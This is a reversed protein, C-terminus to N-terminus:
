AIGRDILFAAAEVFSKRTDRYDRGLLDRARSGDAERKKGIDPLIGKLSPDFLAFLRLMFGPAVRTVIRRKPYAEKLAMALDKFWLFQDCAGIMRQGITEDQELARVHIEAIDRVDVSAFGIEPLMPDKAALLREVIEISTGFNADLPPGVVFSPNVATMRLNKEDAFSWAAKEALTKSVAYPTLNPADPNTWDDETSKRSEAGDWGYSVSVTSSTLVVRAIGASKAAKLARLTGDVAPRITEEPDKPQNLPFPSATHLLAGCGALADTWGADKSLDLAVIELRDLAAADELHPALAAHMEATRNISRASGRVRYGRNLLMLVIHKAIYGTAGTVFVPKETYLNSM